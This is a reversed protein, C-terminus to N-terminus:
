SKLTKVWKIFSVFRHFRYHVQPAVCHPGDYTCRFSHCTPVYKSNCKAINAKLARCLDLITLDIGPDPSNDAVVPYQPEQM